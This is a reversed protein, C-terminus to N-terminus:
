LTLKFTSSTLLFYFFLLFFSCGYTNPIERVTHQVTSFNKKRKRKSPRAVGGLASKNQQTGRIEIKVDQVKKERKKIKRTKRQNKAKFFFFLSFGFFIICLFLVNSLKVVFFFFYFFFLFLFFFYFYFVCLNNHQSNNMKSLQLAVFQAYIIEKWDILYKM